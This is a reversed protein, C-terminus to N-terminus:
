PGAEIRAAEYSQAAVERMEWALHHQRYRVGIWVALVANTLLILALLPTPRPM